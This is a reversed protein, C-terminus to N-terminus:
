SLEPLIEPWAPLTISWQGPAQRIYSAAVELVREANCVLEVRRDTYPRLKIEESALIQYIGDPRQLAAFV